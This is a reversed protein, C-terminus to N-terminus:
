LRSILNANKCLILDAGTSSSVSLVDRGSGIQQQSVIILNLDCHRGPNLLPFGHSARELCYQFKRFLPLDQECVPYYNCPYKQDGKMIQVTLYIM